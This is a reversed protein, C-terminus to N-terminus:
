CCELGGMFSCRRSLPLDLERYFPALNLVMTVTTMLWLYTFREATDRPDFLVLLLQSNIGLSWNM